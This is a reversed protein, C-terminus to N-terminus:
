YIGARRLLFYENFPRDDELVPVWPALAIVDAIPLENALLPGFVDQVTPVYPWELLDRVARPPLRSALVGASVRPIPRDSGLFHVGAVALEPKRLVVPFARVHPFSEGFARAVSAITASETVPIWQQVIGGERLRARAIAYFERTYLLSSGAAEPPHPPDVTIVDYRRPSRELMRRGDDIVIRGKPSRLVDRADAHYYAFMEPVSPVLEVATAEIDWTLLSRFTTGMGFCVVLADKPSRDLFALPLHAMMKTLPSLVTMSTGNVLLGKDMGTGVAMVTATHDRRVERPEFITEYSRTTTVLAIAAAAVLPVVALQRRSPTVTGALWAPRLLGLAGVLFFPLALWLLVAEEAAHPLLAFGAVLPGAISGLVNVAYAAGARDPDGNSWRDVLFPTLLGCLVCVPAVGLALRVPAPMGLRPDAAALPLL